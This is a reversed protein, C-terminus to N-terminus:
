VIVVTNLTIFTTLLVAPYVVLLVLLRTGLINTLFVVYREVLMLIVMVIFADRDWLLIITKSVAYKNLGMKIFKEMAYLAVM